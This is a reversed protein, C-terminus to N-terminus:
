PLSLRTAWSLMKQGRTPMRPRASATPTTAEPACDGPTTLDDFRPSDLLSNLVVILSPNLSALIKTVWFASSTLM